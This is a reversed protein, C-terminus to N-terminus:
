RITARNMNTTAAAAVEKEPIPKTINYITNQDVNLEANATTTVVEPKVEKITMYIKTQAPKPQATALTSKVRVTKRYSYLKSGCSSMLLTAVGVLAISKLFTVQTKM